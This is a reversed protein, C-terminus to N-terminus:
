LHERLFAAVSEKLRDTSGVWFHDVGPLVKVTVDPGIQMRYEELLAGDCYPDRDGTIFLTPSPLHLELKPGRRTPNSVSVVAALDQHGNAARLTVMAGFSYGALAVRDANVEPLSRLHELAAIVDKQEGVGNDYEGESFGVGRFNFRLAAAGVSLAAECVTQVVNNYMDGGYQPHPHAVVVGPAPTAEPLQLLGELKLGDSVFTVERRDTTVGM